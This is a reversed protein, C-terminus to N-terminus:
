TKQMKSSLTESVTAFEYGQERVLAIVKLSFAYKDDSEKKRQAYSHHKRPSIPKYM